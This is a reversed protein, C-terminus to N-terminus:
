RRARTASPRTTVAAISARTAPASMGPAPAPPTARDRRSGSESTLHDTHFRRDVLEGQADDRERQRGRASQLMSREGTSRSRAVPTASAVLADAIRRERAATDVLSNPSSMRWSRYRNETVGSTSMRDAYQSSRPSRGDRLVAHIAASAATATAALRGASWTARAFLTSLGVAAQIRSRRATDGQLEMGVLSTTTPQGREPSEHEKPGPATGCREECRRNREARDDAPQVVGDRDARFLVAPERPDVAGERAASSGREEM